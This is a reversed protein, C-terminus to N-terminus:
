ATVNGAEEQQAKPPLFSVLCERQEPDESFGWASDMGIELDCEFEAM